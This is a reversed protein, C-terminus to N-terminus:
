FNSAILYLQRPLWDENCGYRGSLFRLRTHKTSACGKKELLNKGKEYKETIQVSEYEHVAWPRLPFELYEM